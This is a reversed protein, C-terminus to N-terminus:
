RIESAFAFKALKAEATARVQSREVGTAPTLRVRAVDGHRSDNHVEVRVKAVGDLGEIVERVVSEIEARRLAPKFVKGVTTLPLEEVIRIHKPVAAREGIHARAHELLEAEDVPMDHRLQVYAVPLEGAVPDPRGVTAALTVAPHQVLPQEILAPDINHGGRIILEKRRGTLWAYGDADLRGLDGTNMWAAGDGTDVWVGTDHEQQRYGPMVNPGRIVIAGVEDPDCDGRYRGQEDLRMAQLQQYPLRLGISGVRREGYRPNLSSVCTGETLGYGELIRVGTHEQSQEFLAPPMPAAGCGAYELSSIDANERPTQSLVAYVTPVGSFTTVRYREVIRWFNPLVGAGRYGQPSALVVTQGVGFPGLGTVVVGNVHFLPLGCLVVQEARSDLVKTLAWANYVENGHTHQALKPTGTTGGTHFLSAIDDPIIRRTFALRDAPHDAAAEHLDLVTQGAVAQPRMKGRRLMWVLARQPQPLYRALDVRIVTELTPVQRRVLEVKEWIEAKPIPALTVLVKASAPNMIEAIVEPELMPNIPNAIGAAEAGFLVSFTEPLNPLLISVVDGAGIGCARLTNASQRIAALLEGYTLDISRGYRTGSVFFRLAVKDAGAAAAGRELWAYTSPPLERAGLPTAELAEIDAISEIRAM